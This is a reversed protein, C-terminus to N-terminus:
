KLERNQIELLMDVLDAIIIPKETEYTDESSNGAEVSAIIYCLDYMKALIKIEDSYDKDTEWKLDDIANDIKQHFYGCSEYIGFERSM